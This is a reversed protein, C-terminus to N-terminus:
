RDRNILGSALTGAFAGIGDYLFDQWEGSRYPICLQLLEISGGFVVPFIFSGIWIAKISIKNKLYATQDFFIVGSLGMFMLFHVIKDFDSVPASPLESTPIVCFILIITCIGITIGYKKFYSVM